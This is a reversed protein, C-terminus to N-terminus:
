KVPRRGVKGIAAHILGLFLWLLPGYAARGHRRFDDLQVGVQLLDGSRDKGRSLGRVRRLAFALLGAAIGPSPM